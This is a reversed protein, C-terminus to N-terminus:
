KQLVKETANFINVANHLWKGGNMELVKKMKGFQFERDMLCQSGLGVELGQGVGNQKRDKSTQSTQSMMQM